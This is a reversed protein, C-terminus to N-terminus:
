SRFRSAARCGSFDWCAERRRATWSFVVSRMTSSRASFSYAAPAQGGRSFSGRCFSRKRVLAQIILMVKSVNRAASTM